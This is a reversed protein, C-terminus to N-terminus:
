RERSTAASKEDPPRKPPPLRLIGWKTRRGIMGPFGVVIVVFCLIVLLVTVINWLM